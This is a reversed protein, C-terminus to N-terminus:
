KTRMDVAADYQIPGEIKLDPRKTRVIETAKRVKGLWTGKVQLVQPILCCPLRLNSALLWVLILLPFRSKLSNNQPLIQISPAIELGFSPRRLV